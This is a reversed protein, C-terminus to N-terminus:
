ADSGGRRAEEFLEIVRQVDGQDRCLNGLNVAADVDGGRRAEEFLVMARLLDGQDCCLIGLNVAADLQGGRHAEEFLEMARRVDGQDRCFNGLNFAADVDGGRRALEYLESSRGVDRSVGEGKEYNLGFAFAARSHEPEVDLVEAFLRVAEEFDKRQMHLAARDMLGQVPALDAHSVRCLPCRGSAGRRRMDVICAEHLVHGCALRQNGMGNTDLSDLCICCQGSTAAPVDVLMGPSLYQTCEAALAERSLVFALSFIVFPHMHARAWARM